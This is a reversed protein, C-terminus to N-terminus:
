QTEGEPLAWISNLHRWHGALDMGCGFVFRDPVDLGYHDIWDRDLGRDHQKRALVATIVESAQEEIRNKVAQLTYGEDFIDDILLVTTNTFDREPWCRWEVEGGRLADRYRTAHVYDVQLPLDIRTTLEVFPYLGGNMVPIALIPGDTQCRKLHNQVEGALTAWASKVASEPIIQEAQPPWDAAINM